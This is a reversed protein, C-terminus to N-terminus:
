ILTFSKKKMELGNVFNELADMSLEFDDLGYLEVYDPFLMSEFGGFRIAAPKLIKLSQQYNKPIFIKLSQSIHRMRQKLEM